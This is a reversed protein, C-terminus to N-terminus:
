VARSARALGVTLRARRQPPSGRTPRCAAGKICPSPLWTTAPGSGSTGQWTMCVSATPRSAGWRPHATSTRRSSTRGPIYRWWQSVDSLDVSRRTPHFVLSGPVLLDPDADPYKAPDLPREAVTVYGTQRVFRRFEAVTVPHQDIWFENVEVSRVPREEPYFDASGMLFTGGLVHVMNKTRQRAGSLTETV